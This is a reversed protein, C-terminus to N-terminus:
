RDFSVYAVVGFAIAAGVIGLGNGSVFAHVLGAVGTVLCAFIAFGPITSVTQKKSGHEENM